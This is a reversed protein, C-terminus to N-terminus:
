EANQVLRVSLGNCRIAYGICCNVSGVGFNFAEINMRPTSSWYLGSVGSYLITNESIRYGAAPLFVAGKTELENEWDDFTILNTSFAANAVNTNNLSYYLINWDDPLIIVGKVNNVTARAYRLGSTTTRSFLLYDWEVSTLTRWQNATNAGNSITNGGWDIFSTYTNTNGTIGETKTPDNGTGWGFLDIWGSYYLSINHNDSGLVTGGVNGFQDPIQTGVYDWQYEAFRWTETTAQYQLNGQSFYVQNGNANISFLGNIAGTPVGSQATFNAVFNRNDTVTFSYEANNSVVEDNETWQTFTYGENPQATLTCIANEEYTGAGTISGGETPNATADIIYSTNQIGSRVPRVSLGFFRAFEYSSCGNSYFSCQWSLNPSEISLSSSWYYSGSGTSGLSGNSYIGGAPLFLSNGNESTFLRGNVGNQTTWVHTTNNYLEQWEENTPMRWDSGWNATAADNERLLISLTDSFGNYGFSADSCYKTLTNYSGNCYQYTSWDYFDKPQTEGWAFYDGYDEPTVAGVNCAAWLTGSPLGLDVYPSTTKICITTTEDVKVFFGQMPAVSSCLCRVLEGDADYVMFEKPVCSGNELAYIYANCTYPNGLLAWGNFTNNSDESYTVEVTISADDYSQYTSGTLSLEIDEPNAYLYGTTGGVTTIVHQKNNRWEANPYNSDFTYFDNDENATMMSPVAVDESFPFALLYYNSWNNVENFAAINKEMTVVLGQTNHKLQGGDAMTISGGLLSIQNAIATYGAPIVADAAIFVDCGEPPVEGTNWHSGDNWNGSSIFYYNSMAISQPEQGFCLVSLIILITTLLLKKM